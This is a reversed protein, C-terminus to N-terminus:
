TVVQKGREINKVTEKASEKTPEKAVMAVSSQACSSALTPADPGCSKATRRLGREDQSALADVADRGVNTVIALAGRKPSVASTRSTIQGVACDFYKQCPSQVVWIVNFRRVFFSNVRMRYQLSWPQCGIPNWFIAVSKRDIPLHTVPASSAGAAAVGDDDRAM